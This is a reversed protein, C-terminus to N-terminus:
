IAAKLKIDNQTEHYKKFNFKLTELLIFNRSTYKKFGLIYYTKDHLYIHFSDAIGLLM